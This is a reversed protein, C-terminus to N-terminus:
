RDLEKNLSESTMYGPENEHRFFRNLRIRADDAEAKNYPGILEDEGTVYWNKGLQIITLTM